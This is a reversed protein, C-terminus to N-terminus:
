ARGTASRSVVTSAATRRQRYLAEDARMILETLSDGAELDAMGVTVSADKKALDADVLGFREAAQLRTMDSLGCVFEDGGFRVILDYFRLRARLTDAVLRLLNDGAAHGLSDNTNKLGDVDVFVIVFPQGTRKARATERDLELLGPERRHARTLGDLSESAREKATAIRDALAAQRDAAAHARDDAAAERDRRAAARDPAGAGPAVDASVRERRAAAADRARAREDRESAARDRGKARRDRAKSEQAVGGAAGVEAHEGRTGGGVVGAASSHAEGSPESASLANDLLEMFRPTKSSLCGLATAVREHHVVGDDKNWSGCKM